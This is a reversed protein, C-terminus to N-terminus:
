PQAGALFAVDKQYVFYGRAQSIVLESGDDMIQSITVSDDSGNMNTDYISLDFTAGYKVAVLTTEESLPPRSGSAGKAVLKKGNDSDMRQNLEWYRISDSDGFTFSLRVVVVSPTPGPTRVPTPAPTPAKTPRRTPAKTPPKTPAKTTAKTPSKTETKTTPRLSPGLTPTSPPLLAETQTPQTSPAGTPPLTEGERSVVFPIEKQYVFYDYDRFIVIESGNDMVKSITLGDNSGDLSTDYLLIEYSGYLVEVLQTEASLRTKSGADGRAVVPTGPSDMQRLEWLRISDSDGFSFDLQLMATATTPSSTPGPTPSETPPTTPGPTPAITPGGTPDPTPSGTPSSTTPQFTPPPTSDTAPSTTPATIPPRNSASTPAPTPASTPPLSVPENTPSCYDPVITSMLCKQDRIWTYAASVRSYVGSHTPRACGVGFSVVGVQLYEAEVWQILPGGSDGQCSDYGGGDIGACIMVSDVINSSYQNQCTQFSIIQVGVEQLVNTISGEESTAGFGIAKTWSDVEPVNNDDNLRIPEFNHVPQDLQVLMFDYGQSFSNYWPHKVVQLVNRYQTDSERDAENRRTTGIMVGNNVLFAAECHAATLLIDDHVLTAGCLSNQTSVAYWRYFGQGQPVDSGGVIRLDKTINFPIKSPSDSPSDSPIDTFSNNTSAVALEVCQQHLLLMLLTGLVIECGNSARM